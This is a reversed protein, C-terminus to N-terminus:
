SPPHWPNGKDFVHEAAVELHHRAHNTASLMPEYDPNPGERWGYYVKTIPVGEIEHVSMPYESSVKCDLWSRLDQLRRTISCARNFPVKGYSGGLVNSIAIMRRYIHNLEEGLALHERSTLPQKRTSM